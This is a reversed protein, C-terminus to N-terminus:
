IACSLILVQDSVFILAREGQLSRVGLIERLQLHLSELRVDSRQLYALLDEASDGYTDRGTPSSRERSPVREVCTLRGELGHLQAQLQEREARAAAAVDVIVVSDLFQAQYPLSLLM